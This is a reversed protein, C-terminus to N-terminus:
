KVEISHIADVADDSHVFLFFVCFSEDITWNAVSSQFLHISRFSNFFQFANRKTTHTHTHKEAARKSVQVNCIFLRTHVFSYLSNYAASYAYTDTAQTHTLTNSHFSRHTSRLILFFLDHFHFLNGYTTNYTKDCETACVTEGYVSPPRLVDCVCVRLCWACLVCVAVGHDWELKAIDKMDQRKVVITTHSTNGNSRSGAEAEAEARECAVAIFGILRAIANCETNLQKAWIISKNLMVCRIADCWYEDPSKFIPNTYESIWATTDFWM